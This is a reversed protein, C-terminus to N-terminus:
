PQEKARITGECIGFGIRPLGDRECWGRLRVHDGDELFTRNQDGVAIPSTGNWSLELLSGLSDPTPGSLTGTAWLDGTRTAAGNSTAHALQQAPSWYSHALNSRAVAHGNIEVELSVDYTSPNTQRLHPLPEPDQPALPIRYPSLAEITVVWPSISTAFSKGLFPGLPQYEWAQIDRASWDNVLVAGGLHTEADDPDILSGPRSTVFGMELELDLRTTPGFVPGDPGRRQGSPRTIDTGSVTVTGSRGHYGVPLHKWNPLLPPDDPRFMRGVNSAHHESAYFDVFDAVEFPLLLEADGQEVLGRRPLAALEENGDTLLESVRRRVPALGGALLRNLSGRAHGDSPLRIVGSRHVADLDLIHEGIAVGVRAEEDNATRFVGFPLNALPFDSGDVVPVWSRLRM